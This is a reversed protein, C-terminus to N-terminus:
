DQLGQFLLKEEHRTAKRFSIVRILTPTETHVISVSVGGLFGLTMFRQETYTFRDDDITLTPGDFVRSADRFDFGHTRLNSKRKREDWDFRM